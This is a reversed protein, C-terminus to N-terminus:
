LNTFLLLFSVLHAVNLWHLSKFPKLTIQHCNICRCLTILKLPRHALYKFIRHRKCLVNEYEFAHGSFVGM